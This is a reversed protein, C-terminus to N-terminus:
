QGKKSDQEIRWDRYSEWAQVYLRLVDARKAKANRAGVIDTRYRGIPNGKDIGTGTELIDFFDKYYDPREEFARALIYTLVGASGMDKLRRADPFKEVLSKHKQLTLSLETTSPTIAALVDHGNDVRWM